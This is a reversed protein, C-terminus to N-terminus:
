GDLARVIKELIRLDTNIHKWMFEQKEKETWPLSDIIKRIREKQERNTYFRSSRMIEIRGTKSGNSLLRRFILVSELAPFLHEKAPTRITTGSKKTLRLLNM